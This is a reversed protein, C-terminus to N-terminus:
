VDVLKVKLVSLPQLEGLAHWLWQAVVESSWNQM